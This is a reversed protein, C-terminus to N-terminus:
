LIAGPLSRRSDLVGARCLRLVGGGILLDRMRLLLLGSLLLRDGPRLGLFFHLLRQRLCVELRRRQLM